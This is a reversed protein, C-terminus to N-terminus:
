SLSSSVGLSASCSGLPASLISTVSGLIDKILNLRGALKELFFRSSDLVLCLCTRKLCTM